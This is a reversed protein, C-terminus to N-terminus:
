LCPIVLLLSRLAALATSKDFTSGDAALFFSTSHGKTCCKHGWALYRHLEDSRITLEAVEEARPRRCTSIWKAESVLGTGQPISHRAASHSMANTTSSVLYFRPSLLCRQNWAGSDDYYGWEDGGGQQAHEDYGEEHHPGTDVGLGDLFDDESPLQSKLFEVEEKGDNFSVWNGEEDEYGWDEGGQQQQQQQQQMQQPPPYGYYGQHPHPHPHHAHPHGWAGPAGPPPVHPHFDGGGGRGGGVTMRSM